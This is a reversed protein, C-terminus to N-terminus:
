RWLDPDVRRQDALAAEVEADEEWTGAIDSLDRQKETTGGLGFARCLAELTVRNLSKGQRRCEERIASDLSDPVNRLTYQKM